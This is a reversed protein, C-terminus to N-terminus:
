RVGQAPKQAIIEVFFDDKRNSATLGYVTTIRFDCDAGNAARITALLCFETAAIDTVQIKENDWLLLIGGRTGM